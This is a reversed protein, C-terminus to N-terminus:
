SVFGAIGLEDEVAAMHRCVLCITRYNCEMRATGIGLIRASVPPHQKQIHRQLNDRRKFLHDIKCSDVPCKYLRTINHVGNIHRRLDKLHKFLSRSCGPFCCKRLNPPIHSGLHTLRKPILTTPEEM